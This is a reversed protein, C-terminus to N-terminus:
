KGLRKAEIIFSAVYDEVKEGPAWSSIIEKSNDKPTMQIDTFGAKKLMVEIDEM